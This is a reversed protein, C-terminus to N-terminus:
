EADFAGASPPRIEIHRVNTTALGTGSNNSGANAVLDQFDMPKLDRAIYNPTDANAVNEALVSQRASLWSMRGSLLSFLPVGNLEMHSSWCPFDGEFRLM